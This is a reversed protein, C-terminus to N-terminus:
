SSSPLPASSTHCPSRHARMVLRIAKACALHMSASGVAKHLIRTSATHAIRKDQEMARYRERYAFLVHAMESVSMQAISVDHRPSEVVVEHYGFGAQRPFYEGGGYMPPHKPDLVPHKNPVVRVRWNAPDGQEFLPAACLKENGPCFPCDPSRRPRSGPHTRPQEDLPRRSGETTVVVWDNTLLNLRLEHM